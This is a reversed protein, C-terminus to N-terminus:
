GSIKLWLEGDCFSRTVRQYVYLFSNFIAMSITQFLPNEWLFHHNEMAKQINVLPYVTWGGAVSRRGRPDWPPPPTSGRGRPAAREVPVLSAIAPAAAWCRPTWAGQRRDWTTGLFQSFKQPIDSHRTKKKDSDSSPSVKTKFIQSKIM